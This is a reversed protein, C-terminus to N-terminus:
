LWRTQCLLTYFALMVFCGTFKIGLGSSLLMLPLVGALLLLLLILGRYSLNRLSKEGKRGGGQVVAQIGTNQNLYISYKCGIWIWLRGKWHWGLIGCKNGLCVCAIDESTKCLPILVCGKEFKESYTAVLHIWATLTCLSWFLVWTKQTHCFSYNIIEERKALSFLSIHKNVPMKNITEVMKTYIFPMIPQLTLKFLNKKPFTSSTEHIFFSPLRDVAVSLKPKLLLISVITVTGITDKLWRGGAPVIVSPMQLSM